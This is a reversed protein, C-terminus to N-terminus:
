IANKRYQERGRWTHLTTPVLVTDDIVLREFLRRAGPSLTSTWPSLNFGTQSVARVMALTACHHPEFLGAICLPVKDLKENGVFCLDTLDPLRGLAPPLAAINNYSINLSRLRVLNCVDPSLWTLGMTFIHLRTLGTLKWMADPLVSVNNCSLDLDTLATLNGLGAPLSTLKNARMTLSTLSTLTFLEASLDTLGAHSVNLSRLASLRGLRTPLQHLPAM